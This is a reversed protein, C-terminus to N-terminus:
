FFIQKSFLRVFFFMNGEVVKSGISKGNRKQLVSKKRRRSKQQRRREQKRSSTYDSVDSFFDVSASFSQAWFGRFSASALLRAVGKIYLCLSLFYDDFVWFRAATKTESFSTSQRQSRVEALLFSDMPRYYPVHLYVTRRIDERTILVKICGLRNTVIPRKPEAPKVDAARRGATCCTSTCSFSVLRGTLLDDNSHNGVDVFLYTM